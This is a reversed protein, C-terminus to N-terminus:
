GLIPSAKDVLHTFHFDEFNAKGGKSAGGATAVVTQTASLSGSFFGGRVTEMAQRDLEQTNPLDKICIATM